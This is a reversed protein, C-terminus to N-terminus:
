NEIVKDEAEESLKAKNEKKGKTDAPIKTELSKLLEGFARTLLLPYQQHIWPVYMADLLQLATIRDDERYSVWGYRPPMETIQQLEPPIVRRIVESLQRPDFTPVIIENLTARKVVTLSAELAPPSCKREPVTLSAFVEGVNLRIPIIIQGDIKHAPIKGEGRLKQALEASVHANFDGYSINAPISQVPNTLVKRLYAPTNNPIWLKEAKM